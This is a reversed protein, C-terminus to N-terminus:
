EGNVFGDKNNQVKDLTVVDYVAVDESALMHTSQDETNFWFILADGAATTFCEELSSKNVCPYIKGFLKEAKKILQKKREDM